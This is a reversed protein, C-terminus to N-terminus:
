PKAYRVTIGEPISRQSGDSPSNLVKFEGGRGEGVITSSGGGDLNMADEAGLRKMMQALEVLTYGRSFSQRGDVVLLLIRGTDRDIGIATRPHLESNNEVLRKGDRLLIREGGVAMRPRGRLRWDVTAISGVRMQELSAAGPGRGVLVLGDIANGATIRPRNSVVRGQRIVVQRVARTQGDTIRYGATTGWAPTYIGVGAIKVRPANVNTIDIQPLQHITAELVARGIRPTGHRGFWFANDWTGLSAHLMGRRRDRGVGLPAGTDFIDFFGGNIGALGDDRNVLSTLPARDVVKRGSAADITVGPASPDVSLLHARIRGRRDIEDWRRFKVGPAMRWSRSKAVRPKAYVGPPLKEAAPGTVGESTQGPPRSDDEFEQAHPRPAASLGARDDAVEDGTVVFVGVSLGLALCILLIRLRV